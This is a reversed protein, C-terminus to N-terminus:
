RGNRAKCGDSRKINHGSEVGEGRELIVPWDLLCEPLFGGGPAHLLLCGNCHDPDRLDIELRIRM